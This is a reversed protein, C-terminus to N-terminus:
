IWIAMDLGRADRKPTAPFREATGEMVRKATWGAACADLFVDVGAGQPVQDLFTLPFGAQALGDM